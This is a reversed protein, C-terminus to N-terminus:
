MANALFSDRTDGLIKMSFSSVSGVQEQKYCVLFFCSPRNGLQPRSRASHPHSRASHSHSRASHLYSRTSHNSRRDTLTLTAVTRPEIGADESVTFDSPRRIFCHQIDYIKFFDFFGRKLLINTRVKTVYLFTLIAYFVQYLIQIKKFSITM